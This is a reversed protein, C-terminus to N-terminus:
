TTIWQWWQKQEPALWNFCCQSPKNLNRSPQFTMGLCLYNTASLFKIKSVATRTKWFTNKKSSQACSAPHSITLFFPLCRFSLKSPHVAGRLHSSFTPNQHVKVNKGEVTFTHLATLSCISYIPDFRLLYSLSSFCYKARLKSQM